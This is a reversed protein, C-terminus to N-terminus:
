WALAPITLSALSVVVAGIPRPSFIALVAALESLALAALSMRVGMGRIDQLEDPMAEGGGQVADRMTGASPWREAPKKALSRMVANVLDRPADPSVTSLPQAARTVQQALVEQLSGGEFPLRGSIMRYAIVGLSYIDSRGDIERE